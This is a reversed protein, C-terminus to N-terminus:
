LGGQITVGQQWTPRDNEWFYEFASKIDNRVRIVCAGPIGSFIDDAPFVNALNATTPLYISINSLSGCSNFAQPGVSALSAPLTLTELKSTNFASAAISLPKTCGKLDASTVGSNQFANAGISTLTDYITSLNAATLIDKLATCGFFANNSITQIKTGTLTVTALKACNNFASSYITVLNECGSFNITDLEKCGSFASSGISGLAVCGILKVSALAACGSFASNAISALVKCGDLNVSDLVACSSFANSITTLNECGSLNVTALLDCNSFATNGITKLSARNTLVFSTLGSANFASTGITELATDDLDIATLKSCTQFASAGITTLSTCNSLDVTELKARGSFTSANITTLKTNSLDVIAIEACNYFVNTSATSTTQISTLGICGSLDVTFKDSGISGGSNSFVASGIATLGTNNSLDVKKLNACSFFAANGVTKLSSHNKLTFSTLGSSNFAYNGITGLNACSSLNITTLSTCNAFAGYSATALATDGITVLGSGSLNVAALASCGSFARNAITTLSTCNSLNVNELKTRSPNSFTQENITTLGTNSLDVIAIETCGYFANASASGTQISSLSTCGSLDVTFKDSGISSGSGSFVASGINNLGTNSLDVKKLNACSSFASSGVTTLTNHGSFVFATLGSSKFANDGISGLSDCDDLDIAALQSCTEFASAGITTLTDCGTLDVTALKTCGYFAANGITALLTDAFDIAALSSCGSFAEKNITVLATGSLNVTELSACTKFAAENIASLSTCGSLDITKLMACNYFAQNGITELVPCDSLDISLTDSGTLSNGSNQFAQTGIITLAECGSLDITKLKACNNFAQNGITYLAPCDSLDISLTDSGTLSNGSNQFAAVGITQLGICESLDITKLKACNYFAQNGVTELVSCGTLMVTALNARGSFASADISALTTCDSLDVTELKACSSFMTGAIATLSTCDSMDVIALNACNTFAAAVTNLKTCGSLDVRLKATSPSTACYAFAQSDVTALETCGSLDVDTLKACYSFASSGVTKLSSHGSFDFSALGSYYFAYDEITKLKACGDLTIALTATTPSTGCHDFTNSGIAELAGCDTLDVNVLRTCNQFASHDIAALKICGSLEAEALNSCSAFASSSIKELTICEDLDVAALSGCSMFASEGITALLSCKNLDLSIIGSSRFASNGIQKLGTEALNVPDKFQSCDSFAYDGITELSKCASLHVTQLKSCSAFVGNAAAPEASISGITKLTTAVPSLDVTTLNGCSSFASNGITQLQTNALDVTTLSGCSSFASDGITQLQTNALDVTTLNGCSAFASNGITTLGACPSFDISTFRTGRFAYDDVTTVTSPLEIGTLNTCGDFAYDGITKLGPNLRAEYIRTANSHGAVSTFSDGTCGRFDFKYNFSSKLLPYLDSSGGTSLDTGMNISSLAIQYSKGDNNASDPTQMFTSFDNANEFTHWMDNWSVVAIGDTFEVGNFYGVKKSGDATKLLLVYEGSPITGERFTIEVIPGLSPAADDENNMSQNPAAYTAATLSGTYLQADYQSEHAYDEQPHNFVIVRGVVGPGTDAGETAIARYHKERGSEATVTYNRVFRNDEEESWADNAHISAGNHYIKISSDGPIPTGSPYTINILVPDEESGSEAGISGISFPTTFYYLAIDCTDLTPPPAEKMAIVRYFKQRGNEATVTYLRVSNGDEMAWDGEAEVTKGNHTIQIEADGPISTDYPYTISILARNDISGNGSGPVLTGVSGTNTFHYQLIDCTDADAVPSEISAEDEYWSRIYENECSSVLLTFLVFLLNPLMVKNLM